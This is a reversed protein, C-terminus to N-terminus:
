VTYYLLTCTSVMRPGTHLTSPVKGIVFLKPQVVTSSPVCRGSWLTMELPAATAGGHREMRPYTVLKRYKDIHLSIDGDTHHEFRYQGGKHDCHLYSRVHLRHSNSNSDPRRLNIPQQLSNKSKNSTSLKNSQGARGNNSGLSQSSSSQRTIIHSASSFTAPLRRDEWGCLQQREQKQSTATSSSGDSSRTCSALQRHIRTDCCCREELGSHCNIIARVEATAALASSQTPTAPFERGSAPEDPGNCRSNHSSAPREAGLQSCSDSEEEECM